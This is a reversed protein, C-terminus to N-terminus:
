CDTLLRDNSDSEATRRRAPQVAVSQQVSPQASPQAPQQAPQQAPGVVLRDRPPTEHHDIIYGGVELNRMLIWVLDFSVDTSQSAGYPDLMRGAVKLWSPLANAMSPEHTSMHTSM